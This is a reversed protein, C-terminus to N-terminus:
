RDRQVLRDTSSAVPPPTSGARRHTLSIPRDAHRAPCGAVFLADAGEASVTRRLHYLVSIVHMVIATAHLGAWAIQFWSWRQEPAGVQVLTLEEVSTLWRNMQRIATTM